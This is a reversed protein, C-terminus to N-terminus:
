PSPRRASLAVTMLTGRGCVCWGDFPALLRSEVGCGDKDMIQWSDMRVKRAHTCALSTIPWSIVDDPGVAASM